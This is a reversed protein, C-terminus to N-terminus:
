NPKHAELDMLPLLALEIYFFLPPFGQLGQCGCTPCDTAVFLGLNNASPRTIKDLVM